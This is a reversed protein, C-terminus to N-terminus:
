RKCGRSHEEGKKKRQANKRINKITQEIEKKEKGTANELQKELEEIQKSGKDLARGGDGHKENKGSDSPTNFYTNDLADYIGVGLSTGLGIEIAVNIAEGIAWGARGAAIANEGMPDINSLPNGGVYGYTNVGGELGIPDSQVYRAAAMNCYCLVLLTLLSTLIKNLM